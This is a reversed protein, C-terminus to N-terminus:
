LAFELKFAQGYKLVTDFLSLKFLCGMLIKKRYEVNLIHYYLLVIKASCPFFFFIVAIRSCVSPFLAFM